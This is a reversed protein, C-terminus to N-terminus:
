CTHCCMFSRTKRWDNTEQSVCFDCVILVGTVGSVRHWQPAQVAYVATAGGHDGHNQCNEATSRRYIVSGSRFWPSWPLALAIIYM